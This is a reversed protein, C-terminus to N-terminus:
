PISPHTEAFGSAREYAAGAALLAAEGLHPGILQFGMPAGDPSFGMPLTLSPVGALNFPMTFATLPAAGQPPGATAQAMAEVSPPAIPMAPAIIMDVDGFITALAGAFERRWIAVRAYDTASAARSEDLLAAYADSYAERQAPYTREHSIAAEVFAARFALGLIAAVDPVKVEVFAAGAARLTAIAANLAAETATDLGALAYAPDLGIRVGALTAAPGAAAAFDEDPATLATPDFPDPGAIAAFMLAADLVTRTMPGVHDFTDSLPFVGHRSVRGWTPKLGVLHCCASPFRISGATDTGIVGYALGAAAAVGSGSSSVGTWHAASWPNVPAAIDPHHTGWAGETLQLKGLIVAGAAQLRAAVTSTLGPAFGTDFFGGARTQTGALACLDKVAVPVGHLPALADGAARRRDARRAEELAAEGRVECYAKLTPNLAAIRDLAHATVEQSSVEGARIRAAVGALSEYHLASM